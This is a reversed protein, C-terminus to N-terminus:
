VVKKKRFRNDLAGSDTLTFQNLLCSSPRITCYFTTRVVIPRFSQSRTGSFRNRSFTLVTHGDIPLEPFVSLCYPMISMHLILFFFYFDTYVSAHSRSWFSTKLFLKLFRETPVCLLPFHAENIKKISPWWLDEFYLIKVSNWM